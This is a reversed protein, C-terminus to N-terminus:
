GHTGDHIALRLRDRFQNSSVFGTMGKALTEIGVWINVLEFDLSNDIAAPNEGPMNRLQNLWPIKPHEINPPAITFCQDFVCGVM